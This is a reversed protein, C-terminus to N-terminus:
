AYMILGVYRNKEGQCITCFQLSKEDARKPPHWRLPVFGPGVLAARFYNTLIMVVIFLFLCLHVFGALSSMPWWMLDCYITSISIVAITTLALIPGWNCLQWCWGM